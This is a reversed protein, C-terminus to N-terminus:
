PEFQVVATMGWRLRPDSDLLKIKAPYVVDGSSLRSVQGISEVVGKLELGPLADFQMTVAQGVNVAPVKIETLDRTEVQWGTLDALVIAPAGVTAQEGLHPNIRAITGAFPARIETASLAQQASLLAVEAQQIAAQYPDAATGAAEAKLQDLRAQASKEAAAAAAVQASAARDGPSGARLANLRAQAAQVDAIASQLQGRLQNAQTGNARDYLSLQDLATQIQQQAYQAQALAAEAELMEPRNNRDVTAHLQQAQAAKVEAEAAAIQRPLQRQYAVQNAQAVAVNAEAEASAARLVANDLRALVEGAKVVDGEKVLIEAIQGNANFSLTAAQWPLLRGEATTTLQAAIPGPQAAVATPAAGCASLFLSALVFSGLIFWTRIRMM